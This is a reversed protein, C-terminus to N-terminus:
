RAGPLAPLIRYVRRQSVTGIPGEVQDIVRLGHRQAQALILRVCEVPVETLVRTGQGMGSGRGTFLRYSPRDRTPDITRNVEASTETIRLGFAPSTWSLSVLTRPPLRAQIGTPGVTLRDVGRGVGRVVVMLILAFGIVFGGLAIGSTRGTRLAEAISWAGLAILFLYVAMRMLVPFRMNRRYEAYERTLDFSVESNWERPDPLPTGYPVSTTSPGAPGGVSPPPPLWPPEAGVFPPAAPTAASAVPRLSERRALGILGFGGIILLLFGPVALFALSRGGGILSGLVLALGAFAVVTLTTSLRRTEM